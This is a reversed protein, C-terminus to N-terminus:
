QNIEIPTSTWIKGLLDAGISPCPRYRRDMNSPLGLGFGLKIPREIEFTKYHLLDTPSAPRTSNIQWNQAKPKSEIASIAQSLSIGNPRTKGFFVQGSGISLANGSGTFKWDGPREYSHTPLAVQKTSLVGDVNVAILNPEIHNHFVFDACQCRIATETVSGWVPCNFEGLTAYEALQQGWCANAMRKSTLGLLPNARLKYFYWVLFHLPKCIRSPVFWFGKEPEFSGLRYEEICELERLTIWDVWSGVPNVREQNQVLIIPSIASTIKIRGYAVGYKAGKPPLKAEKWEGFKSRIDILEALASTYAACIDYDFALTPEKFYGIQCTSIWPKRTTMRFATNVPAPVDRWTCPNAKRLL